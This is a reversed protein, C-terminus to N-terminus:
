ESLQLADLLLVKGEGSGQGVTPLYPLRKQNLLKHEVWVM